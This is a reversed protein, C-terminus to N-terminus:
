GKAIVAGWVQKAGARKLVGAASELTAGTTSVDDVLIIIKGQVLHQKERPLAFVQSVNRDREEGVLSAQPKTQRYRILADNTLVYGAAQGILVAQNFGREHERSTHLPLAITVVDTLRPIQQLKPRLLMGLPIALERVGNYKLTHIAERLTVNSFSDVFILGRLM